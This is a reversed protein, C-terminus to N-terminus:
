VLRADVGRFKFGLTFLFSLLILPMRTASRMSVPSRLTLQSVSFLYAGAEGQALLAGAASM